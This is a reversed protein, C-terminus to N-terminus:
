VASFILRVKISPDLSNTLFFRVPNLILSGQNTCVHVPTKLTKKLM